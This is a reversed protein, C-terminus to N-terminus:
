SRAGEAEADSEAPPLEFGSRAPLLEELAGMVLRCSAELAQQDADDVHDNLCTLKGKQGRVYDAASRAEREGYILFAKGIKESGPAFAGSALQWDQVLWINPDTNVRFRHRCTADMLAGEEEWVRAMTSKLYPDPLHREQFQSFHGFPLMALNKLAAHPSCPSFWRLPHSLVTKRSSFHTDIVTANTVRMYFWSHREVSAPALEAVYRPLGGAFFDQPTVEDIFLMDDNAYIFHEPLEPIRHLNLEITNAVFTPLYEKPIYEDHRVVHLRPNSTDLWSPLHGQTLLHVTRIWPAFRDVGRLLYRLTGWDRYRSDRVDLTVLPENVGREQAQYRHRLAQWAPDTDDVWPVVLDIPYDEHTRM